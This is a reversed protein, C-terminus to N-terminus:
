SLTSARVGAARQPADVSKAPMATKREEPADSKTVPVAMGTSPPKEIMPQLELIVADDAESRERDGIVVGCSEIGIRGPVVALEEDTKGRRAPMAQPQYLGGIGYDAFTGRRNLRPVDHDRAVLLLAQM